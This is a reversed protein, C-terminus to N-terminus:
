LFYMETVYAGLRYYKGITAQSSSYVTRWSTQLPWPQQGGPPESFNASM